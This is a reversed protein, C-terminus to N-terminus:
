QRNTNLQQDLVELAWEMTLDLDDFEEGLTTTCRTFLKVQLTGLDVTHTSKNILYSTYSYLPEGDTNTTILDDSASPSQWLM